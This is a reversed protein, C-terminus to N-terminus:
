PIPSPQPLGGTNGDIHGGPSQGVNPTGAGPFLDNVIVGIVLKANDITASFYNRIHEGLDPSVQPTITIPGAPIPPGQLTHEVTGGKDTSFEVNQGGGSLSVSARVGADSSMGAKAEGSVGGADVAVTVANIETKVDGALNVTLEGEGVCASGGAGGTCAGVRVNVAVDKAPNPPRKLHDVLSSSNSKENDKEDDQEDPKNGGFFTSNAWAFHGDLDFRTTPLERVYGYLSLTQPDSMEAYPVPVPVASWDASVFRGLASAYFRAGFDDLGSEADREKGTFKFHNSPDSSFTLEEGWPLYDSDSIVKGNADTTISASKLFDSFYYSVAGSNDRRAVRTGGVFAYEHQINGSLDSEAVIGPLGYWYLTGTTGTSKSIRNWSADYGYSVVGTGSLRSEPNYTYSQTGAGENLLNGGADYTYGIIQNAGNVAVSLVPTSCKTLNKALLNGWPDYGYNMGWFKSQGSATKQTCDAGSTQATSLRNLSDYNFAQTRTPDLNNIRQWVDGNDMNGLHFDYGLNFITNTPTSAQLFVPQLRPDYSFSNTIGAFTSSSGNIYGTIEGPPNYGIQTAYNIGNGVDVASVVQSAANPTYTITAGSPYTMTALSGDLNYGYKVDEMASGIYEREQLVRGMSDYNFIESSSSNSQLGLRDVGNGITVGGASAISYSYNDTSAGNYAVSTLHHDPDYGYVTKMLQTPDTQNQLPRDREIVLSDANYTYSIQGAEPNFSSTLRSLSDYQFRRQRWQTSDTTGGKQTVTLLNDLGDYTYLTVYQSSDLAPGAGGTFNTAPSTFSPSSFLSPNDHTTSLEPISPNDPGSTKWVMNITSGNLTATVPSNSANLSQALVTAIASVDTNYTGGSCAGNTSAGYCASATFGGVSLSVTGADYTIGPSLSLDWWQNTGNYSNSTLRQSSDVYLLTRVSTSSGALFNGGAAPAGSIGTIDANTWGAWTDNSLLTIQRLHGGSDLYYIDSPFPMDFQTGSSALVGGFSSTIDQKIWATGNYELMEVHQGSAVYFVHTRSSSDYYAIVNSAKIAAPAATGTTIDANTWGAWSGNAQISAERVHGNSDTFYFDGGSGMTFQTNANVLASGGGFSTTLDQTHWAGPSFVYYVTQLHQGSNAYLIYRGTGNQYATMQSGAIAAPAGTNATVDFNCWAAWTGDSLLSVQRMHWNADFYYFDGPAATIIPTAAAALVGGFSTTLDKSFWGSGNYYVAALHQASTMYLVYTRGAADRYGIMRTGSVAVAAGAATTVDANNWPAWSGSSTQTVQRIHGNTDVYYFDGTGAQVIPSNTAALVSTGNPVSTLKGGITVSATGNTGVSAASPEDVEVLRGLADSCLRRPRGTEDRNTSCNGNYSSSVFSRDQKTTQTLRGLADYLNSTVGYTPDSTSCYPNTVSGLHGLGDYNTDVTVHCPASAHVTRTIHGLGDFYISADDTLGANILKLIEVTTPNPYNVTVNGHDPFAASTFRSMFDYGYTSSNHNQDTFGTLLGTNFDYNGSVCHGMPDCTQTPYAGAFATSYSSTSKHTMPDIRQYIVGTDYWNTYSTVLSNSTNLWRGVSTPNGRVSSPATVHQTTIGSGFLRASDDYGSDTEALKTFSGTKQNCPTLPTTTSPNYTPSNPSCTVTLAPLNLLNATNYAGSTDAQWQYVIDTQRLLPGHAGPGFDYELKQTLDGATPVGAFNGSDYFKQVLSVQPGPYIATQIATPLVAQNAADVQYTTDVEKLLQNSSAAGQYVRTATEYFNCYDPRPAQASITRFVHVTENGNADTV